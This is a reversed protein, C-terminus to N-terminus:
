LQSLECNRSAGMCGLLLRALAKGSRLACLLANVIGHVHHLPLTHLIRDDPQWEWAHCLTDVMALLSGHTHLAGAPVLIPHHVRVGAPSLGPAHTLLFFSPGAWMRYARGCM